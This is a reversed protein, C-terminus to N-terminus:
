EKAKALEAAHAGKLRTLEEVHSSTLKAMEEAHTKKIANEFNVREIQMNKITLQLLENKAEVSDHRERAAKETENIKTVHADDMEKIKAQAAETVNKHTEILADHKSQLRGLTEMAGNYRGELTEYPIKDAM